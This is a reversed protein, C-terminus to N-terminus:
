WKMEYLTHNNNDLLIELRSRDEPNDEFIENFNLKDLLIFNIRYLRIISEFPKKLFNPYISFMEKISFGGLKQEASWLRAFTWPNGMLLKTLEENNSCFRVIAESPAKNRIIEAIQQIESTQNSKGGSIKLMIIFQLFNIMVFYVLIVPITKHGFRTALYWVAAITSFITVMEVYREPEGLFRTLRFSTLLFVILGLLAMHSCFLIFINGENSILAPLIAIFLLPNLFLIILLSNTYAYTFAKRFSDAMMVWIDYIIDRWISFRLKLIYVDALDTAYYKIFLFVHKLYNLAYAPLVVIFMFLSAAIIELMTWSGFFLLFFIAFFVMAQQAFVNFGWILFCTGIAGIWYVWAFNGGLGALYTFIAFISFLLLGVPRASIGYNRASKAHFFQPTLAFILCVSGARSALGSGFLAEQKLVLYIILLQIVNITPNLFRAVLNIQRPTLFSLFWHLFLPYAGGFPENVLRPVKIFLKHGNERIVSALFLHVPHDSGLNVLRAAQIYTSSFSGLLALIFFASDVV